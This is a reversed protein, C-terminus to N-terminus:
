ENKTVVVYFSFPVSRASACFCCTCTLLGALLQTRWCSGTTYPGVRESKLVFHSLGSDITIFFFHDFFLLHCTELFKSNAGMEELCIIEGRVTSFGKFIRFFLTTKEIHRASFNFNMAPSQIFLNESITRLKEM